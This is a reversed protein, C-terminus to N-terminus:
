NEREIMRQKKKSRDPGIMAVSKSQLGREFSEGWKAGM